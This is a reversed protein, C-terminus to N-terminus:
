PMVPAAAEFLQASVPGLFFESVLDVMREPHTYHIQHGILPLLCCRAHPLLKSVEEYYRRPIIRDDNGQILMLSTHVQPLASKLDLRAVLDCRHALPAIRTRANEECYFPWRDRVPRPFEPLNNWALVQDRFPLRRISGPVRRGFWLALKEAITFQRGAFAGQVAAKIFRAPAKALAGLTVTTGFSIGLVYAQAIGEADVLGLFDEILNEHNIRGLRAGDDPQDGPYDYIITRFREGLRNLVMAYGQYTGAIGPVLVLPPGSGLVRYTMRYRPGSWSKVEANAEYADVDARWDALPRCMPAVTATAHTEPSPVDM